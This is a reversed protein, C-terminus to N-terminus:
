DECVKVVEWNATASCITKYKNKAWFKSYGSYKSSRTTVVPGIKVEIGKESCFPHCDKMKSIAKQAKEIANERAEAILPDYNCAPAPGVKNTTKSVTESGSKKRDKCKKAVEGTGTGTGVDPGNEPEESYLVCEVQLLWKIHATLGIWL